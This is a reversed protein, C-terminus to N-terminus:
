NQRLCSNYHNHKLFVDHEQDTAHCFGIILGLVIYHEPRIEHRFITLLHHKLGSYGDSSFNEVVDAIIRVDRFTLGIISSITQLQEV